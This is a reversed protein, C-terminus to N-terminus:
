GLMLCGLDEDLLAVGALVDLNVRTGGLSSDYQMIVRMSVGNYVGVAARVGLSPAPIALPRSVLAIADRHFALNFSGAPGPFVADEDTVTADLPRDLLIDTATSSVVTAEIITYTHRSGGTGFSVLQGVQPGKNATHGDVSIEKSYGAAKTGNVLCSKYVTLVAAALTAYKNAENMTVATTNTSATAAVIVTPQDNGAVTAYEGLVVEYNLVSCPQTAPTENAAEANTITGTVIDANATSIYNTNQDMYTEFGLIHGLRANTLANGGDGRENAKVFLDTKLLSTESAPAMVLNRGETYAKAVNLQERADLVFDRANSGTMNLLRGARATPTKFFQHCRGILARDVMRSINQMAPALHIPILEQFSKSSEGDRIVFSDYFWQDLPVRVNTLTVDAHTYSDTDTKRRGSRVGPRRTNVVDGFERIESEFDRHVLGAMVMNEELIMLGENAWLEPVLADNDNAFCILMATALYLPNM